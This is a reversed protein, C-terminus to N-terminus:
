PKPATKQVSGGSLLVMTGPQSLAIQYSSGGHMQAPVAGVSSSIANTFIRDSMLVAGALNTTFGATTWANSRLTMDMGGLAAGSSTYGWYTYGIENTAIANKWNIGAGRIYRKCFWTPSNTDLFDAMNSLLSANILAANTTYPFMGDGRTTAYQYLAAGNQRLTGACDAEYGRNRASSIAPLLLSALVAIIAIVVLLEILTFARQRPACPLPPRSSIIKM